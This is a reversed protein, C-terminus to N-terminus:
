DQNGLEKHTHATSLWLVFGIALIILFSAFFASAVGDQYVYSIIIVPFNGLASFLM